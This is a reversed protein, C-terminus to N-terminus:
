PHRRTASTLTSHSISCTAGGEQPGMRLVNERCAPNDRRLSARAKMFDTKFIDELYRMTDNKYEHDAKMKKIDMSIFFILSFAAFWVASKTDMLVLERWREKARENPAFPIVNRVLIKRQNDDLSNLYEGFNFKVNNINHVLQNRLESIYKIFSQQELTLLDLEKVFAMKGTKINSLELRDFVKRIRYDGISNSLLQSVASEMLAHIKIVFAWDDSEKLFSIIFERSLGLEREIELLFQDFDTEM